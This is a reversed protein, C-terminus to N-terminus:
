QEGQLGRLYARYAENIDNESPQAKPDVKLFERIIEERADDPPVAKSVDLNPDNAIQYVYRDTNWVRGPSVVVSTAYETVLKRVEAPSLDKGRRSVEAEIRQQLANRLALQDNENTVGLKKILLDMETKNSVLDISTKKTGASAESFAKLMDGRFADPANLDVQDITYKDSVNVKPNNLDAVFQQYFKLQDARSTTNKGEVKFEYYRKLRSADDESLNMMQKVHKTEISAWSLGSQKATDIEKVVTNITDRKQADDALKLLNYDSEVYSKAKERAEADVKGKRGLDDVYEIQKALDGPFKGQAEDALMRGGQQTEVTKMMKAVRVDADGTLASKYNAYYAMAESPNESALAGIIQEHTDSVIKDVQATTVDAPQGKLKGAAQAAVVAKRLYTDRAEPDNRYRIAAQMNIDASAQAQSDAANLGETRRYNVISREVNGRRNNYMKDFADLQNQNKLTGRIRQAEKDYQDMATKSAEIADTGRLTYLDNMLNNEYSGLGNDAKLLEATNEREAQEMVIASAAEAVDEVSQSFRQLSRAVAGGFADDSVGGISQFGANAGSQQVTPEVVRRVTPM